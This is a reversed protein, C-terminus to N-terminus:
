HRPNRVAPLQPQLGLSISVAHALDSFASAPDNALLVAGTVAIGAAGANIARDANEPTIGGLALAPVPSKGALLGWKATGLPRRRDGPKSLPRAFPSLLVFDADRGLRLEGASHASYGIVLEPFARRVEAAPLTDSGLQVGAAAAAVAVHPRGNVLLFAHPALEKAHLYLQRDSKAKDRLQVALLLGYGHAIRVLRRVLVPPLETITGTLLIDPVFKM